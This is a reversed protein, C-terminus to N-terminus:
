VLKLDTGAGLWFELVADRLPVGKELFPQIIRFRKQALERATESLSVLEPRM